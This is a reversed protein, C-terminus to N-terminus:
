YQTWQTWGLTRTFLALTLILTPSIGAPRFTTPYNWKFIGPGDRGDWGWGLCVSLYSTGNKGCFHFGNKGCFHFRYVWSPQPYYYYFLKYTIIFIQKGAPAAIELMVRHKLFLDSVLAWSHMLTGPVSAMPSDLSCDIKLRQDTVSFFVISLGCIFGPM